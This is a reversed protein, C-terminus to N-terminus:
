ITPLTECSEPKKRTVVDKPEPHRRTRQTPLDMLHKVYCAEILFFLAFVLAISSYVSSSEVTGRIGYELDLPFM